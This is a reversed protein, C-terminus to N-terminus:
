WDSNAWRTLKMDAEAGAKEAEDVAAATGGM